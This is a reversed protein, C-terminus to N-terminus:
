LGLEALLDDADPKGSKAKVAKTTRSGGTAPAMRARDGRLMVIAEKMEDQTLTGERARQRLTELRMQVEPSQASM